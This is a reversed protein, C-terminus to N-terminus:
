AIFGLRTVRLTSGKEVFAKAGTLRSNSSVGRSTRKHYAQTGQQLM